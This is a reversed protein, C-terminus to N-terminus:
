VESYSIFLAQM